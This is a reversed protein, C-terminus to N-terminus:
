EGPLSAFVGIQDKHRLPNDIFRVLDRLQPLEVPLPARRIYEFDGEPTEMPSYIIDPLSDNGFNLGTNGTIDVAGNDLHFNYYAQSFIIGEDKIFEVGFTNTRENWFFSFHPKNGYGINVALRKLGLENQDESAILAEIDAKAKEFLSKYEEREAIEQPTLESQDKM